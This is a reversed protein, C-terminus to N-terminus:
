GAALNGRRDIPWAVGAKEGLREHLELAEIGVDVAREESLGYRVSEARSAERGARRKLRFARTFLIM